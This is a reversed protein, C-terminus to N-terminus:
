ESPSRESASVITLESRATLICQRTLRVTATIGYNSDYRTFFHFVQSPQAGDAIVRVLEACYNMRWHYRSNDVPRQLMKSLRKKNARTFSTVESFVTM